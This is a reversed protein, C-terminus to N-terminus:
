HLEALHTNFYWKAKGLQQLLLGASGVGAHLRRNLDELRFENLLICCWKLRHVPLLLEVRHKLEDSNPLVSLLEDRFQQGQSQTVPLEPQCIFDCILKAPDDWGAYEFDLFFLEGQNELVNHFGFDSPSIIRDEMPLLYSTQTQRLVELLSAKLRLWLPLLQEKVFKNAEMEVEQKPQIALLSDIRSTALEIHAQWNLCADAALPLELAAPSNRLFNITKIFQATKSIHASTIAVPRTGPLYTYLARHLAPDMGLPLAVLSIGAQKLYKLFGFETSLRDRKDSNQQFYNKLIWQGHPNSIRHVESNRGARIREMSFPPSIGHHQCFIKLPEDVLDSM